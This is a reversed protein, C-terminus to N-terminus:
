HLKSFLEAYCLHIAILQAASNLAFYLTNHVNYLIKEKRGFLSPGIKLTKKKTVGNLM